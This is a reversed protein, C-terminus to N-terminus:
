GNNNEGFIIEELLDKELNIKNELLEKKKKHTLILKEYIEVNEINTLIINFDKINGINIVKVSTEDAFQYIQKKIYESNLYFNIIEPSYNENVKIIAYNSTTTINNENFEIINSTYPPTLKLIIDGKDLLYKDDIKKDTNIRHLKNEDIKYNNENNLTIIKYEYKNEKNKFSSKRLGSHVQAIQKLKILNIKM